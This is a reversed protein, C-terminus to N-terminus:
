PAPNCVAYPGVPTITEPNPIRFGTYETHVTTTGAGGLLPVMKAEFERVSENGSASALEATRQYLKINHAALPDRAGQRDAPDSSQALDRTVVVHTPGAASPKGDLAWVFDPRNQFQLTPISASVGAASAPSGATIVGAVKYKALFAATGALKIAAMGGQSHGALVIPEDSPVGAQELAQRVLESSQDALGAELRLNTANDFPNSGQGVSQDETGPIQVVWSRSGDPHDIRDIGITGPPAGATAYHEGVRGQLEAVTEPAPRTTTADLRKSVTLPGPRLEPHFVSALAVGDLILGAADPVPDLEPVQKGPPLARIFAGLGLVSDEAPLAAAFEGVSPVPEGHLRLWGAYLANAIVAPGVIFPVVIATFLLHEGAFNGAVVLSRRVAASADAEADEYRAVTQELGSALTRLRAACATFSTSGNRLPWLAIDVAGATAPSDESGARVATWAALEQEAADDMARAARRLAHVAARLEDLDAFVPSTGGTVTLGDPQPWARWQDPDSM